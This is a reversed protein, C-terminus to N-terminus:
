IDNYFCAAVRKSLPTIRYHHWNFQTSNRNESRCGIRTPYCLFYMNLLPTIPNQGVSGLKPTQDPTSDLLKTLIIIIICIQVQCVAPGDLQLWHQIIWHRDLGWLLFLFRDVHRSFGVSKTRMCSYGPEDPQDYTNTLIRFHCILWSEILLECSIAGIM